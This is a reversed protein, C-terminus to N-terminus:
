RCPKKRGVVHLIPYAALSIAEGVEAVVLTWPSIRVEEWGPQSGLAEDLIALESAYAILGRRQNRWVELPQNGKVLLIRNPQNTAIAIVSLRGRCISLDNAFSVPDIGADTVNREAMRLLVESDVEAERKLGMLHSLAHHNTVTGNHAIICVGEGGGVPEASVLPHNNANDLHSGLTPWRTHGMLLTSCNDLRDLVARYDRSRVFASAPAPAKAVHNAGTTSIHAVGTAHPGRHESGILLNTFLERIAQMEKESRHERSIGVGALGCM